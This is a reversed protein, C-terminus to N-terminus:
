CIVYHILYNLTNFILIYFPKINLQKRQELCVLGNFFQVFTRLKKFM